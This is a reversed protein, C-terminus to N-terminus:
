DDNFVTEYNKYLMEWPLVDGEIENIMEPDKIHLCFSGEAEQLDGILELKTRQSFKPTDCSYLLVELKFTRDTVVGFFENKVM